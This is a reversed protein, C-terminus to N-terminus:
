CQYSVYTYYLSHILVSFEIGKLYSVFSNCHEVHPLYSCKLMSLFNINFLILLTCILRMALSSSFCKSLDAFGSVKNKPLLISGHLLQHCVPARHSLPATRHQLDSTPIGRAAVYPGQVLGESTTAQIVHHPV